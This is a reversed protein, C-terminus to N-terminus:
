IADIYLCTITYKIYLNGLRGKYEVTYLKDLIFIAIVNNYNDFKDSTFASKNLLIDINQSLYFFYAAFITGRCITGFDLRDEICNYNIKDLILIYIPPPLPTTIPSSIFVTSSSYTNDTTSENVRRMASSRTKFTKM